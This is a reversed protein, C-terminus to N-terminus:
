CPCTLERLLELAKHWSTELITRISSSLMQSRVRRQLSQLLSWILARKRRPIERLQLSIKNDIVQLSHKWDKSRLRLLYHINSTARSRRHSSKLPNLHMLHSLCKKTRTPSVRLSVPRSSSSWSTDLILNTLSQCILVWMILHLLTTGIRNWIWVQLSQQCMITLQRILQIRAMELQGLTDKWPKNTSTLFPLELSPKKRIWM